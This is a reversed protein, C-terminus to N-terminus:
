VTRNHSKTIYIYIFTELLDTYLNYSFLEKLYNDAAFANLIDQLFFFKNTPKLRLCSALLVAFAGETSPPM